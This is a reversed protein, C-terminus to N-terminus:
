KWRKVRVVTRIWQPTIKRRKEERKNQKRRVRREGQGPYKSQCRSWLNLILFSWTFWAEKHVPSKGWKCTLVQPSYRSWLHRRWCIVLQKMHRAWKVRVRESRRWVLCVSGYGSVQTSPCLRKTLNRFFFSKNCRSNCKMTREGAMMECGRKRLLLLM